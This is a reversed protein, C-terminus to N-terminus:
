RVAGEVQFKRMIQVPQWSLKSKRLGPIGLDQELNVYRYKSYSRECAEHLIIQATGQISPDCYQLHVSVTDRNLGSGLTFCILEGKLFIGGGCLDLERFNLFAESVAKKQSDHALKPFHRSEKRISFWKEFLGAAESKHDPTLEVYKYDPHRKKFKRIHNRKADFKKGKLEALESRLFVYDFQNRLCKIKYSKIPLNQLFGESVRSLRGSRELLADATGKLASSGIPELFFPPENPPSIFICLNGNMMTLRPNDFNRWIYLNTISLECISRTSLDLFRKIEELDNREIPKMRPYEPIM